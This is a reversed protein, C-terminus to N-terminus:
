RGKGYIIVHLTKLIITIDLMLSRNKIYFLDYQFKILQQETTEAYSYNIQAWGTLGPKVLNRVTYYPMIKEFQDVFHPREPRPGIIAMEGKLVNIVQPLEDIRLTRIIRGAKTIRPDNPTTFQAGQLEAGGREDLAHMTRFKIVNFKKGGKGIREQMYFLPGPSKWKIFVAVIPTIIILVILGIISLLYDMVRQMALYLPMHHPQLNEFFWSDQLSAFAIRGSLSEFFADAPMTYVDWFLLEYLEGYLKTTSTGTNFPMVILSVHHESVLARIPTESSFNQIDTKHEENSIMGVIDYGLQPNARLTELLTLLEENPNIALVRVGTRQSHGIVFRWLVFLIAFVFSLIFLNTRPTINFLPVFYFLAVAVAVGFLWSETFRRILAYSLKLNFLDYLGNVYLVTLWAVFITSMPILHLEFQRAFDSWGYRIALTIALSIYLIALDGVLLVIQRAKVARM